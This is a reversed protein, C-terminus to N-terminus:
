TRYNTKSVRSLGTASGKGSRLTTERKHWWERFETCRGDSNLSLVCVGDLQFRKKESTRLFSAWWHAIGVAPGAALIEFGFHIQEQTSTVHRWYKMLEKQGRIPATLPLVFYAANEAFLDVAAHPNRREWALGYARLWSELAERKM